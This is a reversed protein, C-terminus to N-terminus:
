RRLTQEVFASRAQLQTASETRAFRRAADAYVQAAEQWRGELEWCKGCQLAARAQWEAHRHGDVAQQYAVRAEAYARQHFYSEGIMWQAMAATESGQAAPDDLVQRYAGRAAPFEGRGALARGRLYNAEYALPFQPWRWELWDLAVLVDDWRLRAAELQALRLPALATWPEKLAATRLAVQGFLERALEDEGQRYAIEARWFEAQARLPDGPREARLRDLTAAAAQEDRDALELQSQLYLTFQRLERRRAVTEEAGPTADLRALLEGTRQRGAERRDAQRDLWALWYSAEMALLGTPETVAAAAFHEGAEAYAQQERLLAALEFHRWAKETAADGHDDASSTEADDTAPVKALLERYIAVADSTQGLRRHLRAIRALLECRAAEDSEGLSRRLLAIAGDYNGAEELRRSQLEVTASIPPASDAAVATGALEGASAISAAFAVTGVLVTPALRCIRPLLNM